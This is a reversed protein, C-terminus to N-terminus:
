MKSEMDPIFPKSESFEKKNMEVSNRDLYKPEKSGMVWRKAYSM